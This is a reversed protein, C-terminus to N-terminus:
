TLMCTPLVCHRVWCRNWSQEELQLTECPELVAKRPWALTHAYNGSGCAHWKIVDVTVDHDDVTVDVDDVTVDRDDVTVDVDDCRWIARGGPGGYLEPEQYGQNVVALDSMKWFKTDEDVMYVLCETKTSWGRDSCFSFPSNRWYHDKM